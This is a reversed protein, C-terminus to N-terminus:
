KYCTWDSLDKRIYDYEHEELTYSKVVRTEGKADMQITKRGVDKMADHYFDKKQPHYPAVVNIVDGQINGKIVESTIQIVDDAHVLNIRDHSRKIPSDSKFFHGPHRGKGVLGGLRLICIQDKLVKQLAKEAELMNQASKREPQATFDEDIIGKRNGYVGITSWLIVKKINSQKEVTNVLLDIAKSFNEIAPSFSIILVEIADFFCEDWTEPLKVVFDKVDPYPNEIKSTNTVFLEFDKHKQEVFQKGLWGNGLIGVKKM